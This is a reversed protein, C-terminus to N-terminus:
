KSSRKGNSSKKRKIGKLYLEGGDALLDSRARGESEAQNDLQTVLATPLKVNFREWGPRM